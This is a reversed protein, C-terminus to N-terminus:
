DYVNVIKKIKRAEKFEDSLFEFSDTIGLLKDYIHHSTIFDLINGKFLFSRTYKYYETYTNFFATENSVEVKVITGPTVLNRSFPYYTVIDKPNVVSFTYNHINKEIYVPVSKPSGICIGIINPVINLKKYENVILNVLYASVSAGLSFGTIYIKKNSNIYKLIIDKNQVFINKALKEWGSHNRTFVGLNFNALARELTQSAKVYINLENKLQLTVSHNSSKDYYTDMTMESFKIKILPIIDKQEIIIKNDTYTPTFNPILNYLVMSAGLLGIAKAVGKFTIKNKQNNQKSKSKTTSKKTTTVKKNTKKTTSKKKIKKDM